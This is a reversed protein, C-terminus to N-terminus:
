RWTPWSSHSPRTTASRPASPRASRPTNCPANMPARCRHRPGPRCHRHPRRRPDEHRVHLRFRRRRDPKGQARDRRQVDRLPHRHQADGDQGRAPRPHHRASTRTSSSPTSGRTSKRRSRDARDGPLHIRFTGNTIWNKTGNVLYHDGKDEATTRQSTADSGADPESLM